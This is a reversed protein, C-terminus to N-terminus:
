PGVDRYLDIYFDLLEREGIKRARSLEFGFKNFLAIAPERDIRVDLTLKLYDHHRCFVLAHEMLRTGIGRRRFDPHVRLRRLEASDDSTRQAGVMGVLVDGFEALWFGSRGDDSLYADTFHEIDAGTDNGILMGEEVGSEFLAAVRSQDASTAERIVVADLSFTEPAADTM